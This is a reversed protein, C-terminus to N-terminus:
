CYTYQPYTPWYYPQVRAGRGCSPCHGCSPCPTPYVPYPTYTMGAAITTQGIGTITQAQMANKYDNITM